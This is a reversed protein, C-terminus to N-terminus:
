AVPGFQGGHQYKARECQRMYRNARDKLEAETRKWEIRNQRANDLSDATVQTLDAVWGVSTKDLVLGAKNLVEPRAKNERRWEWFDSPIRIDKKSFDDGFFERLKLITLEGYSLEITESAPEITKM